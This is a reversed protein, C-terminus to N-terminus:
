LQKQQEKLIIIEKTDLTEPANKRSAPAAHSPTQGFPGLDSFAAWQPAAPRLTLILTLCM